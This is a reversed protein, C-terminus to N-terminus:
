ITKETAILGRESDKTEENFERRKAEPPRVLVSRQSLAFNVIIAYYFGARRPLFWRMWLPSSTDLPKEGAYEIERKYIMYHLPRRPDELFFCTHLIEKFVEEQVSRNLQMLDSMLEELTIIRHPYENQMAEYMVGGTSVANFPVFARDERFIVFAKLTLLMHSERLAENVLHNLRTHVLKKVKLAKVLKEQGQWLAQDISASKVLAEQAMFRRQHCPEDQTSAEIERRRQERTSSAHAVQQSHHQLASTLTTAASEVAGILKEDSFYIVTDGNKRYFHNSSSLPSPSSSDDSRSEFTKSRRMGGGLSNSTLTYYTNLPRKPGRRVKLETESATTLDDPAQIKSAEEKDKM